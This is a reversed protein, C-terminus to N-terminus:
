YWASSGTPMGRLDAALALQLPTKGTADLEQLDAGWSFWMKSRLNYLNISKILQPLKPTWTQSNFSSFFTVILHDALGSFFLKFFSAVYAALFVTLTRCGPVLWVPFGATRPMSHKMSKCWVTPTGLQCGGAAWQLKCHKRALDKEKSTM